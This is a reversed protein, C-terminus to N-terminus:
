ALDGVAVATGGQKARALAEDARGLLEDASWAPKWQCVGISATIREGVLEATEHEIRSRLRRGLWAGHEASAEPLVVVFEDGGYRGVHDSSRVAARLARGVVRLVRNGGPHGYLDNVRKFDDLDIFCCCLERGHRRCRDMEEELVEQLRRYNLCGTLGDVLASALLRRFGAPEEMCLGALAAHSEVLWSLTATTVTPPTRFGACLVGAVGLPMRIPAAAVCALGGPDGHEPFQEVLAGEADLARRALGGEDWWPSVDSDVVSVSAVDAGLREALCRAVLELGEERELKGSEPWAPPTFVDTTTRAGETPFSRRPEVWAV